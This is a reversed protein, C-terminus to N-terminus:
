VMDMESRYLNCTREILDAEESKHKPQLIANTSRYLGVM